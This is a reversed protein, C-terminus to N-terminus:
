SYSIADIFYNTMSNMNVLIKLWKISYSLMTGLEFRSSVLDVGIIRSAGSM